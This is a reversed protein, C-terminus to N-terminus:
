RAPRRLRSRLRRRSTAREAIGTQREAERKAYIRPLRLSILCKAGVTLGSEELETRTTEAQILKKNYSLEINARQGLASIFRVTAAEPLKADETKGRHKLPLLVIDNPRVFAVGAGDPTDPEVLLHKDGLEAKGDEIKCDFSNTRGLFDFVFPSAPSEYVESPTGIQEIIGTNMIAVRDALDLAEDQDHTVFITTLGTADHIDRLSRRLEVRVKADLAGFPEDLLLAEPDIALTRALSVRQRQGGSLQSPFRQEFGDLQVLDLLEKVRKAIAARDPRARRPKAKLGFAVNDFVTMHNFLAYQQFVFGIKREKFDLTTADRDGIQVLGSDPFELGALIRLLTTKGSGSPGLLGLFEEDGVELNIRDLVLTDRFRKTLDKVQIRLL